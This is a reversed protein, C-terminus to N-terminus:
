WRGVRHWDVADGQQRKVAIRQNRGALIRLQYATERALVSGGPAWSKRYLRKVAAVADPSRELIEQALSNAAGEVDESIMTALGTEVAQSADITRATMALKMAQDRFMNDRMALTGGMDPILGWKGEMVSLSTKPHLIRFDAGLAIQLGGGWCRGHIAAIVPVRLKRWGVSAAQALNPHWPNLKGILRLVSSRSGIISKIDLGSCFDEGNGTLIVVRLDRNKRLQKQTAVISKFMGMDLANRKDPRNLAVRAVGHDFTVTTREM